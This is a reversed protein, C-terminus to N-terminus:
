VWDEHILSNTRSM